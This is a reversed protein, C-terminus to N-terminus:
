SGSQCCCPPQRVFAIINGLFEGDWVFALTSAMTGSEGPHKGKFFRWWPRPPSSSFCDSAPRHWHIESDLKRRRILLLRLLRHFPWGAKCCHFTMKWPPHTHQRGGASLASGPFHTRINPCRSSAPFQPFYNQLLCISYNALPAPSTFSSCLCSSVKIELSFPNFSQTTFGPLHLQSFGVHLLAQRVLCSRGAWCHGGRGNTLHM